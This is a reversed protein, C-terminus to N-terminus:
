RNRTMKEEREMFEQWGSINKKSGRYNKRRWLSMFNSDYLICGKQIPKKWKAIKMGQCYIKKKFKKKSQIKLYNFIGCYPWVVTPENM